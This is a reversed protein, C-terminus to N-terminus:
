KITENTAKKVSHSSLNLRRWQMRERKEGDMGNQLQNKARRMGKKIASRNRKGKKVEEGKSQKRRCKKKSRGM